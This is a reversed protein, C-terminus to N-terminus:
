AFPMWQLSMPWKSSLAGVLLDFSLCVASVAAVGVHLELPRYVLLAVVGAALLLLGLVGAVFRAWGPM